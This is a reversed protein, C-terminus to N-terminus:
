KVRAPSVTLKALRYYEPLGLIDMKSLKVGGNADARNYFKKMLKKKQCSKYPMKQHKM